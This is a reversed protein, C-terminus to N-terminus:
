QSSCSARPPPPTLSGGACGRSLGLLSSGGWGAAVEAAARSFAGAVSPSTGPAGGNVDMWVQGHAAGYEVRPVWWRRVHARLKGKGLGPKRSQLLRSAHLQQM